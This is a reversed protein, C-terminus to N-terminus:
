RILIVLSSTPSQVLAFYVGSSARCGLNDLGDWMFANDGPFLTHDGLSRVLRGRLDVLAVRATGGTTSRVLLRTGDPAPNPSLMLDMSNMPDPLSINVSTSPRCKGEAGAGHIAAIEGSSLARQFLDLEDIRGVFRHDGSSRTGIRLSGSGSHVSGSLGAIERTCTGNFYVRAIAGDFTLAAHTWSEVPISCYGDVWGLYEDPLGAIGGIHFALNGPPISGSGPEASGRIGMEYQIVGIQHYNEKNVIMHINGSETTPNVWVDITLTQVNLNPNHPVDVSGTGDFCLAGEVFGDCPEVGGLLVGDNGDVVDEGDGDLPWWSVLDPPPNVCAHGPSASLAVALVIAVPLRDAAVSRKWFPMIEV